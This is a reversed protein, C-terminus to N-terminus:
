DVNCTPDPAAEPLGQLRHTVVELAVIKRVVRLVATLDHERLTRAGTVRVGNVATGNRSRFELLEYRGSDTLRIEAHRRSASRDRLVFGARSSRGISLTRGLVILQYSGGPERCRLIAGSM